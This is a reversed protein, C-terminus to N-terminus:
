QKQSVVCGLSAFRPPATSAIRLAPDGFLHYIRIIDRGFELDAVTPLVDNLLPGLREHGGSSLATMLERALM